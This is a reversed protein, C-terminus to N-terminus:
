KTISAQKKARHFMAFAASTFRRTNSVMGGIVRQVSDRAVTMSSPIPIAQRALESTVEPLLQGGDGAEATTYGKRTIHM